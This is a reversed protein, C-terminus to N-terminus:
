GGVYRVKGISTVILLYNGVLRTYAYVEMLCVFIQIDLM